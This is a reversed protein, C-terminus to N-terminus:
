LLRTLYASIANKHVYRPNLPSKPGFHVLIAWFEVVGWSHTKFKRRFKKYRFIERHSIENKRCVVWSPTQRFTAMKTGFHRCLDRM